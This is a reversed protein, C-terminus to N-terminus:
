LLYPQLPCAGGSSPVSKVQSPWDVDAWFSPYGAGLGPALPSLHVLGLVRGVVRDQM